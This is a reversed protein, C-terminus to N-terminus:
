QSKAFICVQDNWSDINVKEQEDDSSSTKSSPSLPLYPCDRGHTNNSRTLFDDVAAQWVQSVACGVCVSVHLFVSDRYEEVEESCKACIFASCCACLFSLVVCCEFHLMHVKCSLKGINHYPTVNSFLCM